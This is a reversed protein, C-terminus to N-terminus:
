GLLINQKPTDTHENRNQIAIIQQMVEFSKATNGADRFVEYMIQLEKVIQEDNFRQTDSM